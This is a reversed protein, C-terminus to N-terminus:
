AECDSINTFHGDCLFHATPILYKLSTMLITKQLKSFMSALRLKFDYKNNVSFM